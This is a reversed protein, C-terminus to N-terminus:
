PINRKAVFSFKEKLKLFPRELYRYSIKAIIITLGLSLMTEVLLVMWLNDNLNIKKMFTLTILIGVFHLCYLGYTIVGLKSLHKFKGMKYFSNKSYNQELIICIIVLAIFPREFIRLIYNDFFLEQRFLFIIAFVVYLFVIKYKKLNYFVRKVNEFNVAWAGFAGISMDGICSLTHVENLLDVNTISRFIISIVIISIFPIWYRKIPFVFLILPWLLYFQEEIAVSWLVGLISADPIGHKIIDFNNIFLFYYELNATENPVQGFAQKLLPFVFFGLFVAFYFLPWIRLIRRIWFNIINIKGNEKKEEILLYTILFGSLVFFFNVGLNGNAFLVNTFFLYIPNGAIVVSETHFSHYLFVSLFSLFRLGDLNEFFIKKKIEPM